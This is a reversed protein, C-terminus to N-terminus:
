EVHESEITVDVCFGRSYQTAIVGEDLNIPREFFAILGHEIMFNEEEFEKLLRLKVILSGVDIDRKVLGTLKKRSSLSLVEHDKKV